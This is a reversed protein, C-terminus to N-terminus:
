RISQMKLTKLTVEGVGLEQPRTISEVRAAILNTRTTSPNGFISNVLEVNAPAFPDIIDRGCFALWHGKVDATNNASGDDLGNFETPDAQQAIEDGTMTARNRIRYLLRFDDVLEQGTMGSYGRVLPDNAVEDVLINAM